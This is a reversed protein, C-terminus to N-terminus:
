AGPAAGRVRRRPPREDGAPPARGVLLRRASGQPVDRRQRHRQHAGQEDAARQRRVGEAAEAGSRRGPQPGDVAGPRAQRSGGARHHRGPADDRRARSRAHTRPQLTGEGSRHRGLVGGPDEADVEESRRGRSEEETRHTGASREQVQVGCDARGSEARHWRIQRCQNVFSSDCHILERGQSSARDLSGGFIARGQVGPGPDPLGALADALRDPPRRSRRRDGPDPHRLHPDHVAGRQDVPLPAADRARGAPVAGRPTPAVPRPSQRAM